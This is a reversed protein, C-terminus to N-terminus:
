QLYTQYIELPIDQLHSGVNRERKLIRRLTQLPYAPLRPAENVTKVNVTLLDKIDAHPDCPADIRLGTATVGMKRKCFFRQSLHKRLPKSDIYTNIIVATGHSVAFIYHPIVFTGPIQNENIDIPSKSHGDDDISLKIRTHRSKGTLETM